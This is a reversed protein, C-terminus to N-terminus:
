VGLKLSYGEGYDIEDTFALDNEASFHATIDQRNGLPDKGQFAVCPWTVIM